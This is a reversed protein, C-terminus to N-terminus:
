AEDREQESCVGINQSPLLAPPTPTVTDCAWSIMAGKYVTEQGKSQAMSGFNKKMKSKNRKRLHWLTETTPRAHKHFGTGYPRVGLTCWDM